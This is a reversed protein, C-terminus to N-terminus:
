YWFASAKIKGSDTIFVKLSSLGTADPDTNINDYRVTYKIGQETMEDVREGAWNDYKVSGFNVDLKVSKAKGKAIFTYQVGDKIKITVGSKAKISNEGNIDLFEATVSNTAADLITVGSLNTATIKGNEQYITLKKGVVGEAFNVDTAYNKNEVYVDNYANKINVGNKKAYIKVNAYCNNIFLHGDGNRITCDQGAHTKCLSGFIRINNSGEVCTIGNEVNNAWFQVNASEIYVFGFVTGGVKINGDKCEMVLINGKVDVKGIDKLANEVKKQESVIKNELDNIKNPDTEMKKQRTYEEVKSNEIINVPKESVSGFEVYPNDGEITVNGDINNKFIISGGETKVYVDNKLISNITLRGYSTELNLKGNITLNDSISIKSLLSKNKNILTMNNVTLQYGGGINVTDSATSIKLNNLIKDSPIAISVVTDNRFMLGSPDQTSIKLVGSQEVEQSSSINLSFETINDKIIGQFNQSLRVSVQDSDSAPILTIDATTTDIEISNVSTGLYAYRDGVIDISAYTYGFISVHFIMMIAFGFLTLMLLIGILILMASFIKKVLQM